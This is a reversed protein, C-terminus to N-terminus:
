FFSYNLVQELFLLGLQPKTILMFIIGFLAGWMHADHNINDRPNKASQHSYILYLIGLLFGPIGFFPLFILTLEGTPNILISAFVVSSVGGSAGLSAYATNNINKFYSPINAVFIGIVFLALFYLPWFAGYLSEFMSLYGVPAFTLAKGFSYFVFLNFGLHMWDAHIFGSTILRDYQKNSQIYHPSMILRAKIEPNEFAYYSIAAIVALIAYLYFDSSM